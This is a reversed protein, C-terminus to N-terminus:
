EPGLKGLQKKLEALSAELEQVQSVSHEKEEKLQNMQGSCLPSPCTPSPCAPVALPVM